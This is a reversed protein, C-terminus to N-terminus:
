SGAGGCVVKLHEACWPEGPAGCFLHPMRDTVAYRCQGRELAEFPVPERAPAAKPKPLPKSKPRKRVPQSRQAVVSVLSRRRAEGGKHSGAVQRAKVEPEPMVWGERQALGSIASRTRRVATGIESYPKGEGIMRKVRAKEHKTWPRGAM